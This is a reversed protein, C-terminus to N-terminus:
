RLVAARRAIERARPPASEILRRLDGNEYRAADLLRALHSDLEVAWRDFLQELEQRTFRSLPDNLGSQAVAWDVLSRGTRDFRYLELTATLRRTLSAFPDRSPEPLKTMEETVKRDAVDTLWGSARMRDWEQIGRGNTALEVQQESVPELEARSGLLKKVGANAFNVTVRQVPKGGIAAEEVRTITGVGWEPRRVHRVRDGFQYRSHMISMEM